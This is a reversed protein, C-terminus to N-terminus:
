LKLCYDLLKRYKRKKEFDSLDITVFGFPIEWSLNCLLRFKEKDIDRCHNKHFNNLATEDQPFLMFFNANERVTHPPIETYNQSLYFCDINNHRGRTFYREIKSQNELMLDDFIVLNKENPDLEVPDFVENGHTVKM